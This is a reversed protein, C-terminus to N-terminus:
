NVETLNFKYKKGNRKNLLFLDNEGEQITYSGWTGDVANSGGENSLNLDNTYINRVRTSSSGLDYSNNSGPLFNGSSDIYWRDSGGSARFVHGNSGGQIYLWNSHHQLKCSDGTWNGNNLRIDSNGLITCAGAGGNFDCDGSFTGGGAVDSFSASTIYGAGNTLQNNNTPITPKNSLDNYSGLFTSYGAGNSLQNNNTPITPKNTLNSYSIDINASGDFSTGGITRATTLTAASGTTNQNLTAVRAAAVTGSSINSGNLATLNAGSGYITDGYINQFRVTNSGIDIASDSTPMLDGDDESILVGTSWKSLLQIEKSESQKIQLHGNASVMGIYAGVYQVRGNAM